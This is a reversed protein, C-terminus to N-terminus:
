SASSRATASRLDSRARGSARKSTSRSHGRLAWARGPRRAAGGMREFGGVMRGDARGRRAAACPTSTDLMRPDLDAEDGGGLPRRRHRRVPRHGSDARGRPWPGSCPSATRPDVPWAPGSSCPRRTTDLCRRDGGSDGAARARDVAEQLAANTAASLESSRRRALPSGTGPWNPRLRRAAEGVRVAVPIAASSTEAVGDVYEQRDSSTLNPSSGTPTGPQGSRSCPARREPLDCRLLAEGQRKGHESTATAARRARRRSRSM